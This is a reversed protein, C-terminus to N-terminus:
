ALSDFAHGIFIDKFSKDDFKNKRSQDIHAYTPCGFTRLNSLDPPKNTILQWPIGNAGTSWTPNRIYVMTLLAHGWFKEPLDATVLLTKAGKSLTRWQREIRALQWHAYPITREM